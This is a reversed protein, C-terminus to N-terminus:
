KKDAKAKPAVPTKSAASAPAADGWRNAKIDALTKWTAEQQWVPVDIMNNIEWIAVGSKVDQLEKLHDALSSGRGGSGWTATWAPLGLVLTGKPLGAKEALSQQVSYRFIGKIECLTSDAAGEYLDHYGMSHINDVQGKWDKWWSINPANLCPSHFTDITLIKGRKKIGASLKAIFANFAPRDAEFDGNGELDVDIGELKLRDMEALLANAFKEGGQHSIASRVIPWNWKASTDTYNYVCLLPKIGKSQAWDRFFEVHGDTPKMEEHTVYRIGGDATPGWFQLALRTLGSAMKDGHTDVMKMSNPIGYPSVWTIVEAAQLPAALLLCGLLLAPRRLNTALRALRHPNKKMALSM